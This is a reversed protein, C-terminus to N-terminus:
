SRSPFKIMGKDEMTLEIFVLYEMCSTPVHVHLTLSDMTIPTCTHISHTVLEQGRLHLHTKQVRM